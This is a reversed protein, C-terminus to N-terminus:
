GYSNYTNYINEDINANFSVSRREEDSDYFPYVTHMLYNPFFYFDGVKPELTFMSSSNFMQVGHVLVIKGNHNNVKEKQFTEGLNKPVKLYGVGSVHGGHLHLPNYENQFQRVVWSASLNFKSIKKGQSLNIWKSVSASLFKLLGSNEIFESELKLEQKVNGALKKGHDLKKIKDEEKIIEDVYDNLNKIINTPLSIKAVSPGFPRFIKINYNDM